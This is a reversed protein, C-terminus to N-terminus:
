ALPNTIRKNVVEIRMPATLTTMGAPATSAGIGKLNM